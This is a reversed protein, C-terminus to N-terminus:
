NRLYYWAEFTEQYAVSAMNRFREYRPNTSLDELADAMQKDDLKLLEQINDKM